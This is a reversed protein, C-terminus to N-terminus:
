PTNASEQQLWPTVDNKKFGDPEYGFKALEEKFAGPNESAEVMTKAVLEIAAEWTEAMAITWEGEKSLHEALVALLNEGVASYHPTETQYKLHRIGMAHLYPLLREPQEVGAVIAGLSAMLKKHQEEPPTHFLPKVSPYKEFLRKYFRLGLETTGGNEVKAREFTNRLVLIDLTM